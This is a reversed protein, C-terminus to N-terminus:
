FHYQVQFGQQGLPSSYVDWVVAGPKKVYRPGTIFIDGLIIATVGIFAFSLYGRLKYASNAADYKSDFDSTANSYTDQKSKYNFHSWIFAGGTGAFLGMYVWGRKQEAYVHGWGPFIFSRWIMGGYTIEKATEKQPVPEPEKEKDKYKVRDQYIIKQPLPPLASSMEDSMKVALNNISEFMTGDTKGLETRSVAVRGSRMEIAKGQMELKNGIVIFKGIVVVDAEAAAGIEQAKDDDFSDEKTYQKKKLMKKWIQRNMLEFKGTKQLPELYAEPISIELYELDKKKQVNYFDLVLVRRNILKGETAVNDQAHVFCSLSAALWLLPFNRFM